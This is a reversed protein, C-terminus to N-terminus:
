LNHQLSEFHRQCELFKPMGPRYAVDNEVEVVVNESFYGTWSRKEERHEEITSVFSQIEWRRHKLHDIFERPMPLWLNHNLYIKSRDELWDEYEDTSPLPTPDSYTSMWHYWVHRSVGDWTEAYVGYFECEGRVPIKRRNKKDKEEERIFKLIPDEGRDWTKRWTHPSVIERMWGVWQARSKKAIEPYWYTLLSRWRSLAQRYIRNNIHYGECFNGYSDNMMVMTIMIEVMRQLEAEEDRTEDEHDEPPSSVYALFRKWRNLMRPHGLKTRPLYFIKNGYRDITDLFAFMATTLITVVMPPRKRQFADANLIMRYNSAHFPTTLLYRMLTKDPEGRTLDLLGWTSARTVMRQFETVQFEVDEDDDQHLPVDRSFFRSLHQFSTEGDLHARLIWPTYDAHHPLSYPRSEFFSRPMMRVVTSNCTRGARGARQIMENQSCYRPLVTGYADPVMCIGFDLVMDLGPITISTELKNTGIIIQFLAKSHLVEDNEDNERQGHVCGVVWKQLHLTNDKKDKEQMKTLTEYVNECLDPSHLFLLVRRHHSLLPDKLIRLVQEVIVQPPHHFAPFFDNKYVIDRTFAWPSIVEFTDLDLRSIDLFKEVVELHYDALTASIFVMKPMKDKMTKRYYRIMMLVIRWETSEHHFEDLVLLDMRRMIARASFSGRLMAQCFSPLTTLRLRDRPIDVCDMRDTWRPLLFTTQLSKMHTCLYSFVGLTKGSGTEGKIMLLPAKNSPSLYNELVDELEPNVPHPFTTM